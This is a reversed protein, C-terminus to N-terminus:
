LFNYPNVNDYPLTSIVGNEEQKDEELSSVVSRFFEDQALKVSGVMEALVQFKVGGPGKSRKYVFHHMLYTIAFCLEGVTKIESCGIQAAANRDRVVIAGRREKNIYPM